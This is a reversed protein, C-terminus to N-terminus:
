AKTKRGKNRDAKEPGSIIRVNSIDRGAAFGGRDASVKPTAGGESPKTAFFKVAAWAGGAIVVIGGGIWTLLDKNGPDKLFTWAAELM